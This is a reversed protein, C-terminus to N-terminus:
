GYYGAPRLEEFDIGTAVLFRRIDNCLDCKGSYGRQRPTFGHTERAWDHLGAIGKRWLLTLIKFRNEELVSGLLEAPFALGSCLGPIYNRYLDIHFHSTDGLEVRCSGTHQQIIEEAPYTHSLSRFTELARGGPHVWYRSRIQYLYPTGFHNILETLSHPRSEDFQSLDMLFDATWPFVDIGTLRCCDIVGRVKALPISENHFPSISVLLTHLGVDGLESLIQVTKEEDVYWSCNTEVYDVGVGNQLATSVVRKLGAPNLLPEGGGIHVSHCGQSRVLSLIFAGDDERLYGKGRDPGCNYLCHACRATCRYTTILGGSVLGSIVMDNM